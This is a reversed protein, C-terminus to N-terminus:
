NLYCRIIFRNFKNKTALKLNGSYQLQRIKQVMKKLRILFILILLSTLVIIM